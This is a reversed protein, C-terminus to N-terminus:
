FLADQVELEFSDKPLRRKLSKFGFRDFLELTKSKDYGSVVCADLDLDIEMDRLVTALEKSDLAVQKNGDLKNLMAKGVAGGLTNDKEFAGYIGEISEYKQLLKEATKPGIGRIGPINDSPDGALGKYDIIQDNRVGMKEVVDNEHYHKAPRRGGGPVFMSIQKKDDVLQFLDKDGSVIISEVSKDKMESVRTVITGILDDAEFGEREFFPINLAEVVEHTPAIQSILDDPPKPRQAKYKEFKKKRFTEGKTDFCVVIHTPDLEELVSLLISTFGYVANVMKGTEPATLPPFAYYARFILAHGDILVLRSIDKSM